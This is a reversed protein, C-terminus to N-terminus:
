PAPTKSPQATDPYDDRLPWCNAYPEDKSEIWVASADPSKGRAIIHYIAFGDHINATRFGEGFERKCLMHAADQSTIKKGSIPTTFKLAGASWAEYFDSNRVSDPTPGGTFRFCALPLAANCSTNGVDTNCKVTKDPSACTIETL